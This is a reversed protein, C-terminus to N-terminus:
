CTLERQYGTTLYNIAKAKLKPDQRGTNELYRMIFINPVFNVMNQEGCGYPMRLLSDINNMAAGMVDGIVVVEGRASDNVYGQTAAPIDLHLQREWIPTNGVKPTVSEPCILDNMSYDQPIGEAEVLLPKVIADRIGEYSEDAMEPAMKNNNNKDFCLKPKSKVTEATVTVNASGILTPVIKFTETVSMGGCVCLHRERKQSGVVEFGSSRM